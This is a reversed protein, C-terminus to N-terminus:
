SRYPKEKIFCDILIRFGLNLLHKISCLLFRIFLGLAVLLKFLNTYGEAYKCYLRYASVHFNWESCFLRAKSSQGILHFVTAQPFYVVKWGNNWMRRCIDADEWYMFFQEDMLDTDALACRRIVMCAGSVWDVEIPRKSDSQTTLVNRRSIPNNPFFSTLYTNRGFLATLPTPFSRASGQVSGDLNLIKPGLIGVDRYQEMYTNIKVFLNKDIMTDPNLLVVLPSDGQIIAANVAAAFGLNSKNRTVNLKPYLLVVDNISTDPSNDQVFVDVSINSLNTYISDLCKKLEETSKYNVIIIDFNSL